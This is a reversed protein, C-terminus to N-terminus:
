LIFIIISAPIITITIILVNIKTVSTFTLITIFSIRIMWMAACTIKKVKKQINNLAINCLITILPKRIIDIRRFMNAAKSSRRGVHKVRQREMKWRTQREVWPPPAVADRWECCCLRRKTGDRDMRM